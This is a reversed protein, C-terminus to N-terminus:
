VNTEGGKELLEIIKCTESIMSKKENKVFSAQYMEVPLRRSDISGGAFRIYDTRIFFCSLNEVAESVSADMLDGMISHIKEAIRKGPVSCFSNSFRFELYSRMILQWNESFDRDGLKKKLLMFLKKKTRKANRYFEFQERMSRIKKLIYPLQLLVICAFIFVLSILVVAIWLFYSTNPLLLPGLPPKVDKVGLKEVLSLIFVPALQIKFESNQPLDKAGACIKELSFEKFKIAGTKWPIITICLNYNVGNRVLVANTVLCDDPNELLDESSFELSLTEDKIKSSDAMSFFDIPTRFSYQIQGSDGIFVDRPVMVQTGFVAPNEASNQSYSFFAFLFLFVFFCSVKKM